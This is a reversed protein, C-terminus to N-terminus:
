PAPAMYGGRAFVRDDGRIAPSPTAPISSHGTDEAVQVTLSHFQGDQAPVIGLVYQHRLASAIQRYMSVFDKDSAPFYARGGTMTALALVGQDARALSAEVDVRPEPGPEEATSKPLSASTKAKKHPKGRLAATLSVCYIVVDDGRLKEVLADWRDPPSSDLGTSLVVVAKKGPLPALWDIVASLSDYFNLDGMGITYQVGGLAALLASKDATFGLVARPAQDYSALAVQDDAALGSLLAYAAALHENHILYVAPSTEILVLVQAPAEVPAFFVIPREAGDDLVRFNGQALGGVFDGKKDIVSADVKVLETTAQLPAHTLGDPQQAGCFPAALSGAVFAAAPFFWRSKSFTPIL